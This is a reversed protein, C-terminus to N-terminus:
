TNEKFLSAISISCAQHLYSAVFNHALLTTPSCAFCGLGASIMFISIDPLAIASGIYSQGCNGM